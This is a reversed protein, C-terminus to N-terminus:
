LKLNRSTNWITLQSLIHNSVRQVRLLTPYGSYNLRHGRNAKVSSDKTNGDTSQLNESVQWAEWTNSQAQSLHCTDKQDTLDKSCWHIATNICIKGASDPRQLSVSQTAEELLWKRLINQKNKMESGHISHSQLCLSFPHM